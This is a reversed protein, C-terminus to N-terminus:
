KSEEKHKKGLKAAFDGPVDRLLDELEKIQQVIGSVVDEVKSFQLDPLVKILTRYIDETLRDVDTGSSLTVVGEEELASRIARELPQYEFSLHKAFTILFDQADRRTKFINEAAKKAQGAEYIVDAGPVGAADLGRGNGNGGEKEAERDSTESEPVPTQSLHYM